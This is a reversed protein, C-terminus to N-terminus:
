GEREAHQAVVLLQWAPQGPREPQCALVATRLQAAVEAAADFSSCHLPGNADTLWDLVDWGAPQLGARWEAGNYNPLQYGIRWGHEDRALLLRRGVYRDAACALANAIQRTLQRANM